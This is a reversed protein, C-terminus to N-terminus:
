APKESQQPSQDPTEDMWKDIVAMIVARRRKKAPEIGVVYQEVRDVWASPFDWRLKEMTPTSAPAPTPPERLQTEPFLELLSLMQRTTPSILGGRAAWDIITNDASQM